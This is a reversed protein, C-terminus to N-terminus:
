KDRGIKALEEDYEQNQAPDFDLDEVEGRQEKLIRELHKELDRIENESHELLDGLAEAIHPIYTKIYKRKKIEKKVRKKKSLYKKLDRGIQQVALKVEKLIEPYHAIAEKAESTFPVWVSAIHVVIVM